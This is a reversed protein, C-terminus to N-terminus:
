RNLFDKKFSANKRKETNFDIYVKVWQSQEFVLVQHIKTLRMGLQLYLQLNRYHLVYKDKNGLSQVIKKSEMM